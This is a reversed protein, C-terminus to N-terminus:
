PRAVPSASASVTIWAAPMTCRSKLGELTMRVSAPGFTMSKPMAWAMSAVGMVLVPIITPEAPKMAGSWILPRGPGGASMKTQPTVTAYAAVPWGGNPVPSVWATRYRTMCPSGSMLPTGSGNRDSTAAARVLSGSWRGM